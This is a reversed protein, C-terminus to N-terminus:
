ALSNKASREELPAAVEEFRAAPSMSRFPRWAREELRAAGSRWGIAGKPPAGKVRKKEPQDLDPLMAAGHGCAAHASGALTGPRGCRYLVRRRGRRRDRCSWWWWRRWRRASAAITLAAPASKVSEDSSSDVASLAYYYTAGAAAAALGTDTHTLAAILATNLKTYSEETSLRRYLNYGAVANGDCDLAAAWSLAVTGDAQRVATLAQPRRPLPVKLSTAPDGFFMFTNSTEEYESGGNALLQQSRTAWRRGWCAAPGARLDGRLARQVLLHQGVTDTMATPMLAAVAGANAPWLWGEALSRWSDAAYGGTQPYIFYGTLCSMNVVFPYKGSNTLTAVDSRYAGGRNDIMRETAWINVSGHGSYNVVLAGAEIAALLEATLDTVALAENEYEQLYFREPTAMGAPLLAAADENMTEFVAEWEEAQNDAALVLTKEWGKTNAATEYAVIKNVMAQAQALTAAPLRGIYLDPVADAGSVQVLWEDTITEGLHTTYILYGPVLNVTGSAWNDKYDYSTDGVLLVYQPAPSQWSEYAYTIFDKVAQPTVLGYGFEDFIDEIDVVATRLGQSQRLSVLSNVWGQQTGSGDWGLSRHTIMIWDAANAGAALSSARDKVIAAPTKLAASAVALYSKTGTAGAPEVELTYPGSGSYTGNLVRQVGAADTIDYLEM